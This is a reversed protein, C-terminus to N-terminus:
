KASFGNVCAPSLSLLHHYLASCINFQYYVLMYMRLTNSTQNTPNNTKQFFVVSYLTYSQKRFFYLLIFLIVTLVMNFTFIIKKKAFDKFNPSTWIPCKCM